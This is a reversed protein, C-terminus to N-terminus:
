HHQFVHVFLGFAETGSAGPFTTRSLAKFGGSRRFSGARPPPPRIIDMGPTDHNTIIVDPRLERDQVVMRRLAEEHRWVRFTEDASKSFWIKSGSFTRESGPHGCRWQRAGRARIVGLEEYLDPGIANQGGEGYTSFLSVTHVGYKRRLVTLTTGDEDDPHAAVCMVTASNTLDLLAQHLAARDIATASTQDLFERAPMRLAAGVLLVILLANAFFSRPIFTNPSNREM